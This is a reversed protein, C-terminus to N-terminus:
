TDDKKHFGALVIGAGAGLVDAMWDLPDAVRTPVFAQMGETIGGYFACWALSFILARKRDRIKLSFTGYALLGYALYALFHEFDGGRLFPMGLSPVAYGPQLAMYFLFLTEAAFLLPVASLWKFADPSTKKGFNKRGM